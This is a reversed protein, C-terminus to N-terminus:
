CLDKSRLERCKIDKGQMIGNQTFPHPRSFDPLHQRVQHVDGHQNLPAELVIVSDLLDRLVKEAGGVKQVKAPAGVIRDREFPRELQLFYGIDM